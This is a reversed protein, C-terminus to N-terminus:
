ELQRCLFTSISPEIKIIFITNFDYLEFMSEIGEPKGFHHNRTINRLIRERNDNWYELAGDITQFRCVDAELYGISSFIEDGSLDNDKSLYAIRGGNPITDGTYHEIIQKVGILYFVDMNM